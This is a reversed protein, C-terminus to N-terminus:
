RRHEKEVHIGFRDLREWVTDLHADFPGGKFVHRIESGCKKVHRNFNQKRDFIRDCQSCKHKDGYQTLNNIYSFHNEYLNLNMPKDMSHFHLPSQYITEM